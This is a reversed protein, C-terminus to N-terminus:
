VMAKATIVCRLFYPMSPSSNASATPTVGDKSNVQLDNVYGDFLNHDELAESLRPVLDETIRNSVVQSSQGMFLLDSICWCLTDALLPNM